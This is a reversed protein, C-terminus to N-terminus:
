KDAMFNAATACFSANHSSVHGDCFALNGFGNHNLYVCYNKDPLAPSIVYAMDPYPTWASTGWHTGSDGVLITATPQEIAPLPCGWYGYAGAAVPHGPYNYTLYNVNFGYSNLGDAIDLSSPCRYLEKNKPYSPEIMENWRDWTAPGPQYSPPVRDWEDGYMLCGLAIQKLNNVCAIQRAKERAKALAPLLMAALIAIIAIVVLLEILTFANRRRM